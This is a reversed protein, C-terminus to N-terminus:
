IGRYSQVGAGFEEFLLRAGKYAGGCNVDVRLGWWHGDEGRGLLFLKRFGIQSTQGIAVGGIAEAARLVLDLTDDGGQSGVLLDLDSGSVTVPLTGYNRMVAYRHGVQRLADFLSRLCAQEGSRAAIKMDGRGCAELNLGGGRASNRCVM